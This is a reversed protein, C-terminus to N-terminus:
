ESKMEINRKIFRIAKCVLNDENLVETGLDNKNKATYPFLAIMPLGNKIAKDVIKSLNDITYRYVDPM